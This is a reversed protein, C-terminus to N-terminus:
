SPHVTLPTGLMAQLGARVQEADGATGWTYALALQRTLSAGHRTDYTLYRGDSAKLVYRRADPKIM